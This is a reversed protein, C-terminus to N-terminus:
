EEGRKVRVQILDLISDREPSPRSVFVTVDRDPSSAQVLADHGNAPREPLPKLGIKELARAYHRVHDDISGGAEYGVAHAEGADSFESLTLVRRSGPFRPLGPVDGGPVDNESGELLSLWDFDADFRITWVDTTSSGDGGFALALYGGTDTPGFRGTAVLHPLLPTLDDLSGGVLQGFAGWGAGEMRFPRRLAASVAIRHPELDSQERAKRADVESDAFAQLRDLLERPRLHTSGLQCRLLNGNLFVLRESGPRTERHLFQTLASAQTPLVRYIEAKARRPGLTQAIWFTGGIVAVILTSRLLRTWM